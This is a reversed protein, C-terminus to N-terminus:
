QKDNECAVLLLGIVTKADEIKGSKADEIAQELPIEVIEILEEEEPDPDVAELDSAKYLYVVEDTYGASSYFKTMFELTNAKYGAEEILEKYATNQPDDDEIIGAPLELLPKDVAARFQKVLIIKGDNIAVVAVANVRHVLERKYRLGNENELDKLEVNMLKGKFVIQSSITKDNHNLKM